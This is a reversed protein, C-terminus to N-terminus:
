LTSASVAVLCNCVLFRPLCRVESLWNVSVYRNHPALTNEGIHRYGKTLTPILHKQRYSCIEIFDRMAPNASVKRDIRAAIAIRRIRIGDAEEAAPAERVGTTTSSNVESPQELQGGASVKSIRIASCCGM